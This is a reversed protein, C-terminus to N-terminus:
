KVQRGKKWVYVPKLAGQRYIIERYDQCPFAIMDATKGTDLVGRDPCELARAANITLGALIEAMSLKEFAGLLCAQILLDGMPASGPNWDSAIAVTMGADIMNRAPAFPTGLGLSAGPLITGIVGNEALLAFEPAGSAELHDASVAKSVAALRSGGISFQDAHVTVTFGLNKAERLYVAGHEADFAGLDIYIDARRSLNLRRVEPLLEKIMHRIYVMPDKFEPPCIHAPLATAVLDLSHRANVSQIAELMKLEDRVTLGYGSKVEATTIGRSILDDCRIELIDALESRSAERTRRVTDMIGGGQEAIELYSRGALRMAYDSARSGAHCIHTHADILGPMLVFDEKLEQIIVPLSPTQKALKKFEGIELIMGHGVVIGGGSVIELQNNAIPGATPLHNMTLIQTFPGILQRSPNM